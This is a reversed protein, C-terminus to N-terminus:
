LLGEIVELRKSIECERAALFDRQKEDADPHLMTQRIQINLREDKLDSEEGLYDIVKRAQIPINM